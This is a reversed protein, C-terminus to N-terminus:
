MIGCPRLIYPFSSSVRTEPVAEDSPRSSTEGVDVWATLHHHGTGFAGNMRWRWDPGTGEACDGM